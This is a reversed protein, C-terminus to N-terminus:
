TWIIKARLLCSCAIQRPTYSDELCSGIDHVCSSISYALRAQKDLADYEFDSIVAAGRVHYLFRHAMVIDELSWVEREIVVM